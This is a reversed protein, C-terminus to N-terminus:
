QLPRVKISSDTGLVAGHGVFNDRGMTLPGSLCAHSEIVCGPSPFYTRHFSRISISSDSAEKLDQLVPGQEFPWLRTRLAVAGGILLAAISIAVIKLPRTFRPKSTRGGEPAKGTLAASSM